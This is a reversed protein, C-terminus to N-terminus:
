LDQEGDYDAENFINSYRNLKKFRRFCYAFMSMFCRKDIGFSELSQNNLIRCEEDVLIYSYNIINYGNSKVNKGLYCNHKNIVNKCIERYKKQISPFKNKNENLIQFYLRFLLINIKNFIFIEIPKKSQKYINDSRKKIESEKLEKFSHSLRIEILDTISQKLM